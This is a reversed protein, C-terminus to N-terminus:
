ILHVTMAALSAADHNSRPLYPLVPSVTKWEGKPHPTNAPHNCMKGGFRRGFAASEVQDFQKLNRWAEDGVTGSIDIKLRVTAM